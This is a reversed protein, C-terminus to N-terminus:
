IGGNNEITILNKGWDHIVKANKLWPRSFLVSYNDDLVNNWMVTFTAIYPIEHIHIKFDHIIGVSKTSSQDVM